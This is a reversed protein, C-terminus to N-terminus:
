ASRSECEGKLAFYASGDVYDDLRFKGQEGRVIKLLIMFLWGDGETLSTGKVTNFLAVTTAMSREGDPADREVARNGLAAAAEALVDNASVAKSQVESLERTM